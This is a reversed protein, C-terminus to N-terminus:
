HNAWTLLFKINLINVLPFKRPVSQCGYKTDSCSISSKAAVDLFDGSFTKIRSVWM